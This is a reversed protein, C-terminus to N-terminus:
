VPRSVDGAYKQRLAKTSRGTGEEESERVGQIEGQSMEENDEARKGFTVTETPM